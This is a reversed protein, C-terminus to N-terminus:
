LDLNLNFLNGLVYVVALALIAKAYIGLRRPDVPFNAWFSDVASAATDKAEKGAKYTPTSKATDEVDGGLAFSEIAIARSPDKAWSFPDSRSARRLADTDTTENAEKIVLAGKAGSGFAGKRIQNEVTDWLGM